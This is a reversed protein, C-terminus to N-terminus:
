QAVDGREEAESALAELDLEAERRRVLIKAKSNAITNAGFTYWEAMEPKEIKMDYKLLLHVLAIKVENAAFFRGPCAHKGHSFASHEESTSVLVSKHELGPIARRKLFRYGDFKEPEPYIDPNFHDHASFTVVEGRAIFTGDPLTVNRTALRNSSALQVPKMRQTEKLCSDMLRLETLAQKQWGYSKLVSIAEQRLPELLEPHVCLNLVTQGLLDSTTHIAAISLTLQSNLQPYKRGKGANRCWEIADDPLDPVRGERQAAEIEAEREAFVPGFMRECIAHDRRLKRCWPLGLVFLPRILAPVFGCIATATMFDITYEQAIRIWEANQVFREGLFVRTSLRAVWLLTDDMLAREQWDSASGWSSALCDNMTLSLPKTFKPLSRTLGRLVAEPLLDHPPNGMAQFTTYTSLFRRRLFEPGSLGIESRDVMKLASPPLVVSIGHETQLKFPGSSRRYGEIILHKTNKLYEIKAPISTWSTKPANIIPYRSKPQLLWSLLYWGAAASALIITWPIPRHTTGLAENILVKLDNPNIM